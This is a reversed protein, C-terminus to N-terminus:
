KEMDNGNALLLLVLLLVYHLQTIVLLKNQRRYEKKNPAQRSKSRTNKLIRGSKHHDDFSTALSIIMYILGLNILCCNRNSIQMAKVWFVHTRREASLKACESVSKICFFFFTFSKNSKKKNKSSEVLSM